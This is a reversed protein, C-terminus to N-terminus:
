AGSKLREFSWGPEPELEPKKVDDSQIVDVASPVDGWHRQPGEDDKGGELERKAGLTATTSSITRATDSATCGSSSSVSGSASSSRRPRTTPAAAAAAASSLPAHIAHIPFFSPPPRRRSRRASHRSQRAVPIAHTEQEEKSQPVPVPFPSPPRAVKPPQELQAQQESEANTPKSPASHALKKRLVKPSRVNADEQKPLSVASTPVVKRSAESKLSGPKESPLHQSLKKVEDSAKTHTLQVKASTTRTSSKAETLNTDTESRRLLNMASQYNGQPPPANDPEQYGFDSSDTPRSNNSRTPSDHPRRKGARKEQLVEYEPGSLKRGDPLRINISPPKSSPKLSLDLQSTNTQKIPSERKDGASSIGPVSHSSGRSIADQSLAGEQNCQPSSSHREPEKSPRRKSPTEKTEDESTKPNRSVRSQLSSTRTQVMSIKPSVPIANRRALQRKWLREIPTRLPRFGSCIKEMDRHFESKLMDWEEWIYTTQTGPCRGGNRASFPAKGRRRSPHRQEQGLLPQRTCHGTSGRRSSPSTQQTSGPELLNNDSHSVPSEDHIKSSGSSATHTRSSQPRQRGQRSRSTSGGGRLNVSSSPFSEDTEHANQRHCCHNLTMASGQLQGGPLISTSFIPRVEYSPSSGGMFTFLSNTGPVVVYM